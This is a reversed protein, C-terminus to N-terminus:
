DYGVRQLRRQGQPNELHSYQFSNGHGGGPSRGLGSVLNMDGTDGANCASEKGVSGGSFSNKHTINYIYINRNIYFAYFQSSFVNFSTHFILDKM